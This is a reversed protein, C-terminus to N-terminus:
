HECITNLLASVSVHLTVFSFETDRQIKFVVSNKAHVSTKNTNAVMEILRRRPMRLPDVYKLDLFLKKMYYHFDNGNTLSMEGPLSSTFRFFFWKNRYCCCLCSTLLPHMIVRRVQEQRFHEPLVWCRILWKRSVWFYTSLKKFGNDRTKQFDTSANFVLFFHILKDQSLSTHWRCKTVNCSVKNGRHKM